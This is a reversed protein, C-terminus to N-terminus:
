FNFEILNNKFFFNHLSDSCLFIDTQRVPILPVSKGKELVQLGGLASTMAAWYMVKVSTGYKPIAQEEATIVADGATAVAPFIEGPPRDPTRLQQRQRITIMLNLWKMDEM